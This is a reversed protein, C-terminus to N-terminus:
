RGSGMSAVENNSSLARGAILRVEQHVSLLCEDDDALRTFLDGVAVSPRHWELSWRREDEASDNNGVALSTRV